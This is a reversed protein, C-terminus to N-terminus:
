PFPTDCALHRVLPMTFFSSSNNLSSNVAMMCYMTWESIHVVPTVLSQVLRHFMAGPLLHM